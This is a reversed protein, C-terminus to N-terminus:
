SGIRRRPVLTAAFIAAESAQVVLRNTWALM